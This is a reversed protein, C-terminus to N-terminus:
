YRALIDYACLRLLGLGDNAVIANELCKCFGNGSVYAGKLSTPTLTLQPLTMEAIFPIEIFEEHLRQSLKSDAPFTIDFDFSHRGSFLVNYNFVEVNNDDIHISHYCRRKIAFIVAALAASIEMKDKYLLPQFSGKVLRQESDYQVDLMPEDTPIQLLLYDVLGAIDEPYTLEFTYAGEGHIFWDIDLDIVEPNLMDNDFHIPKPEGAASREGLSKMLAIFRLAIDKDHEVNCPEFRGSVTPVVLNLDVKPYGLERALENYVNVGEKCANAAEVSPLNFSFVIKAEGNEQFRTLPYLDTPVTTVIANEICLVDEILRELVDEAIAFPCAFSYRNGGDDAFMEGLGCVHLREVEERLLHLSIVAWESNTIEGHCSNSIEIVGEGMDGHGASIPNSGRGYYTGYDDIVIMRVGGGSWERLSDNWRELSESLGTVM